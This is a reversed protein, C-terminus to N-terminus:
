SITPLLSSSSGVGSSASVLFSFLSFISFYIAVKYCRSAAETHIYIGDDYNDMAVASAMIAVSIAFDITALVGFM